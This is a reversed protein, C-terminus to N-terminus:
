FPGTVWDWIAEVAEVATFDDLWRGIHLVFEQVVKISLLFALWLATGRRRFSFGANWYPLSAVFLFWFEFVNPFFILVDREGSAAFAVFGITRYAFLALAVNRAPGRWGWAVILFIVMYVQDLYKDFSQYSGLGGLDLLNMWFLDSLDIFVAILGGVFAWRLVPLSGLVRIAGIILVEM